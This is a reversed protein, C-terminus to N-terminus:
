TAPIRGLDRLGAAVIAVRPGRIGITLGAVPRDLVFAPARVDGAPKATPRRVWVTDAGAKSM